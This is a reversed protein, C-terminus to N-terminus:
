LKVSLAIMLSHGYRHNFCVKFQSMSPTSHGQKQNAAYFKNEHQWKTVLESRNTLLTSKDASVYM